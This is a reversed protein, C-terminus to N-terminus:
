DLLAALSRRAEELDPTTSDAERWLDLFTRYSRIAEANMGRQEYIKGLMFHSRASIEGYFLRGSTLALINEYWEQARALDGTLYYAYALSSYFGAHEDVKPDHQYPLLSVAQEFHEVARGADNRALDIHGVLRYWDRILKPILWGDIEAKMEDAARDAAGVNGMGLLIMGRLHLTGIKGIVDDRREAEEQLIQVEAAAGSLDRQALLITAKQYHFVLLWRRDGVATVEDIAQNLIDLAREFQGKALYLNALRLMADYRSRMREWDVGIPNLLERYYEEAQVWEARFFHVDGKVMLASAYGPSRELMKDAELLALEFRRDYIMNLALQHRYQLSVENSADGRAVELATEYQGLARHAQLLNPHSSGISEYAEISKDWEELRFYAEGLFLVARADDPYVRV